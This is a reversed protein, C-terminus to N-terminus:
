ISFRTRVQGLGQISAQYNAGPVVSAMPGLAGSLLIDGARLPTGLQVMRDALWRAANLPNGLCDSGLGSSVKHGDETMVMACGILDLADLPVPRNGLVFLGCSANDAITDTLRIDWRSIRSDVIELAPLAYAIASILDAATPQEVLIDHELVFVIEAEIKPQLLRSIDIEGNDLHAMDAFLCGFDPSDVGLQRQVAVSTLGIKRGVMRAGGAVRLSNNYQQIAYACSVPDGGIAAIDDRLPACPQREREALSLRQALHQTALLSM